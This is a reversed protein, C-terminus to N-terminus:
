HLEDPKIQDLVQNVRALVEATREAFYRSVISVIAEVKPDSPDLGAARLRQDIDAQLQQQEFLQM